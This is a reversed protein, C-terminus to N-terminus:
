NNDLQEKIRDIVDQISQTDSNLGSKTIAKKGKFLGGIDVFVPNWKPNKMAQPDALEAGQKERKTYYKKSMKMYLDGYDRIYVTLKDNFLIEYYVGKELDFGKNVLRMTGPEFAKQFADNLEVATAFKAKLARAAAALNGMTDEPWIIRHLIGGISQENLINKLKIM